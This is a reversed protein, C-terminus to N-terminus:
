RRIVGLTFGGTRNLQAWSLLQSTADVCDDHKMFPFGALEEVYDYTFSKCSPLYINGAEFMPAVSSLRAEKSEKPIVEIIGSIEKKLSDVIAQGNAKVEVLKAGAKPYRICMSRFATLTTPFDMRDRIQDVLYYESGKRAWCQIVVFDSNSSEKFSADVSIYWSDFHGPLLDYYKIWSRKIIAGEEITPDQMYLANWARTGIQHKTANLVEIPYREPWLAQGMENIAPLVLETWKKGTPDTLELDKVHGVIDRNTWRTSVIVIAGRPMLRTYLTTDWWESISKLITDSSAEQQNKLLDDCIIISGGRGTLSGGRGVAFYSGEKNTDFHSSSHSDKAIKCDPFIEHFKDDSEIRNRVRRGFDTALEDGYSCAIVYKDPNKGLYWTPFYDSILFSKGHRPPMSIILRDIEGREVRQLYDAILVIHPPTEFKPNILKCFEILKRRCYERYGRGEIKPGM